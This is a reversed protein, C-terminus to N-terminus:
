NEEEDNEKSDVTVKKSGELPLASEFFYPLSNMLSLEYREDIIFCVNDYIDSDLHEIMREVSYSLAIEDNVILKVASTLDIDLYSEEDVVYHDLGKKEVQALTVVPINFESRHDIYHKLQSKK